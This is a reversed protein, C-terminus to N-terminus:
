AKILYKIKISIRRLLSKILIFPKLKSRYSIEPILIKIEKSFFSKFRVVSIKHEILKKNNSDISVDFLDVLKLFAFFNCYSVRSMKAKVTLSDEGAWSNVLSKNLNITKSNDFVCYYNIYFDFGYQIKTCESNLLSSIFAEKLKSAKMLSASDTTPISKGSLIFDYIQDLNVQGANIQYYDKIKVEKKNSVKIVNINSISCSADNMEMLDISEEIFSPELWDDDCLFKSYKGKIYEAGVIYNDIPHKSDNNRVYKLDRNERSPFNECVIKTEENPSSDVVFIEINKDFTQDYVSQIARKILKPRNITPIIVSVVTM